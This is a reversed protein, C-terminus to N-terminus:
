LVQHRGSEAETSSVSALSLGLDRLRALLGYLHAQDRVAGTLITDGDVTHVLTLDEFWASWHEDIQGKVRIEVNWM